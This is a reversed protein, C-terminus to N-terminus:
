PCGEDLLQSSVSCALDSNALENVVGRALHRPIDDANVVIRDNPGNKKGTGEKFRFCEWEDCLEDVIRAAESHQLDNYEPPGITKIERTELQSKGNEAMTARKVLDIKSARKAAGKKTGDTIDAEARAVAMATESLTALEDLQDLISEENTDFEALHRQEGILIDALAQLQQGHAEVLARLDDNERELEAIREDRTESATARFAEQRVESSM